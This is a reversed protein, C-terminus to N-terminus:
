FWKPHIPRNSPSGRGPPEADHRFLPGEGEHHLPPQPLGDRDEEHPEPANRSSQTFQGLRKLLAPIGIFLLLLIIMSILSSNDHMSQIM